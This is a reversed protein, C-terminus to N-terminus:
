ALLEQLAYIVGPAPLGATRSAPGTWGEAALADLVTQDTVVDRLADVAAPGRPGVGALVVGIRAEPALIAVELGRGRGQASDAVAEARGRPTVVASFNGPFRILDAQAAVTRGGNAGVADLLDELAVRVEDDLQNIGFDTAGQLGAAAHALSLSGVATGTSAVGVPPTAPAVLCDWDTTATCETRAPDVLVALVSSAVVVPDTVPLPSASATADAVAEPWPDLTLWADYAPAAGTLLAVADDVRVVEVEDGPTRASLAECAAGLDDDCLVRFPQGDDGTPDPRDSGRPSGEDDGLLGRLAFAAVVLVVAALVALLRALRPPM